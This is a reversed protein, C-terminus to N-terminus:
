AGEGTALMKGDHLPPPPLPDSAGRWRLVEQALAVVLPGNRRPNSLTRVQDTPLPEYTEFPEDPHLDANRGANIWGVAARDIRQVQDRSLGPATDEWAIISGEQTRAFKEILLAAGGADLGRQQVHRIAHERITM